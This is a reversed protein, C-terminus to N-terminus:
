PRAIQGMLFIQDILMIVRELLGVLSDGPEVGDGCNVLIVTQVSLTTGARSVTRM